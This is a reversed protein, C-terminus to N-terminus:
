TYVPVQQKTLIHNHIVIINFSTVAIIAVILVVITAILFWYSDTPTVGGTAPMDRYLTVTNHIDPEYIEDPADTGPAPDLEVIGESETHPADNIWKTLWIAQETIKEHDSKIRSMGLLIAIASIIIGVSWVYKKRRMSYMLGLLAILSTTLIAIWRLIPITVSAQTKRIRQGIQNLVCIVTEKPDMHYLSPEFERHIKRTLVTMESRWGANLRDWQIRIKAIAINIDTLIKQKLEEQTLPQLEPASPELQM